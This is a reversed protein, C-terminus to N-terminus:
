KLSILSDYLIATYKLGHTKQPNSYIFLITASAFFNTLDNKNRVSVVDWSKKESFRIKNAKLFSM